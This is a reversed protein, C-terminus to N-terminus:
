RFHHTASSPRVDPASVKADFLLTALSHRLDHFRLQAESDDFERISLRFTRWNLARALNTSTIRGGRPGPFLLDTKKRGQMAEVVHPRLPAPIPVTRSKHSKPSSQKLAGSRDGTIQVRVNLVGLHLDVDGVRAGAIEGLRCGTFVLACVIRRYSGPPVAEILALVEKVDLARSTPDRVVEKPMDVELTAISSVLNAKKAGRLLNALLAIADRKTSPGGSWKLMAQEILAPSIDALAISGLSDQLRLRWAVGYARITGEALRSEVVPWYVGYWQELTMGGSIDLDRAAATRDRKAAAATLAYGNKERWKGFSDKYRLRWQYRGRDERWRVGEPLKREVSM